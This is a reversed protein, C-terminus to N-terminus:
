GNSKSTFRLMVAGEHDQALNLSTAKACAGEVAGEVRRTSPAHALAVERFRAWSWSPATMSLNVEFLLINYLM